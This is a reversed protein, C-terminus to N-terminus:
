HSDAVSRKTYLSAHLINNPELNSNKMKVNGSSFLSSSLRRLGRCETYWNMGVEQQQYGTYRINKSIWYLIYRNLCITWSIILLVVVRDNNSGWSFNGSVILRGNISM